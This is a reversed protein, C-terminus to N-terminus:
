PVTKNSLGARFRFIFFRWVECLSSHPFEVLRGFFLKLVPRMRRKALLQQVTSLQSNDLQYLFARISKVILVDIFVM